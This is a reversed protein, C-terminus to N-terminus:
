LFLTNQLSYLSSFILLFYIIAAAFAAVLAGTVHDCFKPVQGCIPLWGAHTNGKKGVHAIALAASVLPPQQHIINGCGNDSGFALTFNQFMHFPSNHQIWMSHSRSDCLVQTSDHSTVMVIVAAITAGIALFRLFLTLLRKTKTM